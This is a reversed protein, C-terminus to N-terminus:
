SKRLDNSTLVLLLAVCSNRNGAEANPCPDVDRLNPGANRREAHKQVAGTNRAFGQFVVNTTESNTPFLSTGSNHGVPYAYIVASSFSHPVPRNCIGLSICMLLRAHYTYSLYAVYSSSREPHLSFM